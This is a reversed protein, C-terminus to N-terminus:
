FINEPLSIILCTFALVVHIFILLFLCIPVRSSHKSLELIYTNMKKKLTYHMQFFISIQSSLTKIVLILFVTSSIVSYVLQLSFRHVTLYTM